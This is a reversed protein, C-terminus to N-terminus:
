VHHHSKNVISPRVLSQHHGCSCCVASIDSSLYDWNLDFLTSDTSHKEGPPQRPTPLRRCSGIPISSLTSNIADSQLCVFASGFPCRKTTQVIASARQMIGLRFRLRQWRDIPWGVFLLLSFSRKLTQEDILHLEKKVSWEDANERQFGDCSMLAIKM